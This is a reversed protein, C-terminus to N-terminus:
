CFDADCKPSHFLSIENASHFIFTKRISKSTQSSQNERFFILKASNFINPNKGTPKKLKKFKNILSM